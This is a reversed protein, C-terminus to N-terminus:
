PAILRLSPTSSCLERAKLTPQALLGDIRLYGADVYYRLDCMRLRHPRLGDYAKIFTRLRMEQNLSLSSGTTGAAVEQVLDLEAQYWDVESSGHPCGRSRWLEYARLATASASRNM